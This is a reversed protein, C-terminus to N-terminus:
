ITRCPGAPTAQPRSWGYLQWPGTVRTTCGAGNGNTLWSPAHQGAFSMRALHGPHVDGACPNGEAQRKGGGTENEQFFRRGIRDGDGGHRLGIGVLAKGEANGAMVAAAEDRRLTGRLCFPREAKMRG